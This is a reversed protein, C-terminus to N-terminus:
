VFALILDLICDGFFTMFVYFSSALHPRWSCNCYYSFTRTLATSFDPRFPTISPGGPIRTSTVADKIQDWLLIVVWSLVSYQTDPIRATDRSLASLSM